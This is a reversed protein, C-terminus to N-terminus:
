TAAWRLLRYLLLLPLGIPWLVAMVAAALLAAGLEADDYDRRGGVTSLDLNPLRAVSTYPPVLWGDNIADVIGYSYAIFWLEGLDLGDDRDPTATLAMARAGGALLAEIVQSHSRSPSHHAEDVVVLDVGHALVAQLRAENILTPISCSVFRRDHDDHQAQVIGAHRALEPWYKSLRKVPEAVLEFRHALWVVRQGAELAERVLGLACETKGCNHTVTFDDLLYRHDRDVTFGYFTAHQETDYIDFGTRLPNKKQRRPEARKRYVQCPVVSLDGSICVRWYIGGRGTQARKEAPSVKAALGLSRAVWAVDESLQRSKSIYDYIGGSSLSGDADILGALLQLRQSRPSTKFAHPIYKTAATCKDLGESRVYDLISNQGRFVRPQVHYTPPRPPRRKYLRLKLGMSSIAEAVTSIMEMDVNTLRVMGSSFSGDGLLCGMVYPPMPLPRMPFEVPVRYQKLIHRTSKNLAVWERVSIDVVEGPEWGRARTSQLSLIHGPNCFWPRGRKPVVQLVRDEFQFTRLVTRPESDPGMLQDGVQIDEVARVTGDYMLVREGAPHCGTAIVLMPHPDGPLALAWADRVAQQAALQYPRFTIM